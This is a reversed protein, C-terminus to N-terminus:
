DPVLDGTEAVGLEVAERMANVFTNMRSLNSDFSLKLIPFKASVPLVEESLWKFDPSSLISMVETQNTTNMMEYLPPIKISRLHKKGHEMMVDDDTPSYGHQIM